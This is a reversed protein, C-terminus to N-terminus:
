MFNFLHAIGAMLALFGPVNSSSGSGVASGRTLKGSSKDSTSIIEDQIPGKEEDLLGAWEMSQDYIM